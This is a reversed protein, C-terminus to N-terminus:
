YKHQEGAPRQRYFPLVVLHGGNQIYPKASRFGTMRNGVYQEPIYVGAALEGHGPRLIYSLNRKVIIMLVRPPRQFTGPELFEPGVIEIDRVVGHIREAIPEAICM